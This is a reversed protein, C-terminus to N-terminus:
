SGSGGSDRGVWWVFVGLLLYIVAGQVAVRIVIDVVGAGTLSGYIAALAVAVVWAQRATTLVDTM